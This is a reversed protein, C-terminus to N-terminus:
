RKNAVPKRQSTNPKQKNINLQKGVCEHLELLFESEETSEVMGMIVHFVIRFEDQSLISKAWKYLKHLM